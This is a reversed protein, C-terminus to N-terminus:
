QNQSQVKLIDVGEQMWQDATKCVRGSLITGTTPATQVCYRKAKGDAQAKPAASSSDQTKGSALVPSASMLGIVAVTAISIKSFM